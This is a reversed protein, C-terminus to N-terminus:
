NLIRSNNDSVRIAIERMDQDIAVLVTHLQNLLTGQIDEKDILIEHLYEINLNKISSADEEDSFVIVPKLFNKSIEELETTVLRGSIDAIIFKVLGGITIITNLLDLQDMPEFDFIIPLLNHEKKLHDRIQYLRELGGEKFRGLLLVTKSGFVNLTSRMKKHDLMFHIFQAMEIDDVLIPHKGEKIMDDYLQYSKEIILMSQDIPKDIKLGWASIGYINTKHIKKVTFNSESINVRNLNCDDFVAGGFHANTLITKNFKVRHFVCNRFNAGSFDSGEFHVDEFKTGKFSMSEGFAEHFTVNNIKHNEYAYPNAGKYRGSWKPQILDIAFPGKHKELLDEKDLFLEFSNYISRDM